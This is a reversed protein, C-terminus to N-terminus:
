IAIGETLIGVIVVGPIGEIGDMGFNPSIRVGIFIGAKPESFGNFKSRADDIWVTLPRIGPMGRVNFSMLVGMLAAIIGFNTTGLTGVRESLSWCITSAM